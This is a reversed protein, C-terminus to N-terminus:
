IDIDLMPFGARGPDGVLDAWLCVAAGSGEFLSQPHDPTRAGRKFEESDMFLAFQQARWLWKAKSDADPM